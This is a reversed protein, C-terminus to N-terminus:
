VSVQRNAADGPVDMRLRQMRTIGAGLHMAGRLVLKKGSWSDPDGRDYM